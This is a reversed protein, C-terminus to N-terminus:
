AGRELESPRTMRNTFREAWQQADEVTKFLSPWTVRYQDKPWYLVWGNSDHEIALDATAHRYKWDSIKLWDGM